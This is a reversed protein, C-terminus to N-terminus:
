MYMSYLVSKKEKRNEMFTKYGNNVDDISIKKRNEIEKGYIRRGHAIKTYTFLLEMDRGYNIFTDKYKEFWATNLTDDIAWENESVKKIFIDHLEKASYPDMNFRWIFRSPLGKNMKFFSENLEEDYGAVIVMLESKRDSLAECLTSICENSFSDSSDGLSYAEDIFLVGGICSDIVNRTKIATQGLYGAILDSRTVKKFINNKLIGLKSYMCGLLKAIETKGTGPPGALVTHKFDHDKNGIHLNQIFYLIQELVAEKFKTLGIMAQIDKLETKIKHLADLDINYRKNPVIPNEEIVKLLDQICHIDTEIHIDIPKSEPYILVEHNKQWKDYTNATYPMISPGINEDYYNMNINYILNLYGQQTISIDKHADLYHIFKKM